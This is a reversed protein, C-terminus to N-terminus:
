VPWTRDGLGDTSGVEIFGSSMLVMGWARETLGTKRGLGVEWRDKGLARRELDGVLGANQGEGSSGRRRCVSSSEVWALVLGETDQGSCSQGLSLETCLWSQDDTSEQRCPGRSRM